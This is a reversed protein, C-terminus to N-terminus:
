TDYIFWSVNRGRADIFKSVAERGGDTHEGTSTTVPGVPSIIAGALLQVNEKRIKLTLLM